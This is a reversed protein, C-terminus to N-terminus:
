KRRLDWCYVGNEQRFFIRGDVLPYYIPHHYSTTTGGVPPIWSGEGTLCRVRGDDTSKYFGGALNGHTGDRRVLVIDEIAQMYGGNKPALGETIAVVKGTALEVLRLDATFVYKDRVVVPVCENHVPGYRANKGRLAEVRAKDKDPGLKWLLSAGKPTLRYAAISPDIPDRKKGTGDNQNVLLVDGHVTLGGPGLGRGGTLVRVNLRWVEKGTKAELCAVGTRAHRAGMLGILYDTGGTSWASLTSVARGGGTKWLFKGTAVDYGGWEKGAPGVLVNGTVLLANSFDLESKTEWLPDGTSADFAYLWGSMGLAFVRGAGYAPSMDFPGAKHHQSNVGRNKIVAKWLTKGTAADLCLVVDDACQFMKEIAYIPLEKGPYGAAKAENLMSRRASSETIKQLSYERIVAEPVDAPRPAPVFYKFFVKGDAVVPSACGTGTRRTSASKWTHMFRTINGMARGIDTEESRWALRLDSPDDITAVGTPQASCGGGAPGQAAPWSKDGAIANSKALESESVYQGSITARRDGMKAHGSISDGSITAEVEVEVDLDVRRFKGTLRSDKLELRGGPELVGVGDDVVMVGDRLSGVYSWNRAKRDSRNRSEPDGPITLNLVALAYAGSPRTVECQAIPSSEPPSRRTALGLTWVKISRKSGSVLLEGSPSMAICSVSERHAEITSLLAGTNRNWVRLTKDDGASVIRSGSPSFLVSTIDGTHGRLTQTVEGSESNWLKLTKDWSASVLQRGDPSYAASTIVASHGRLTEVEEGNETDWIKLENEGDGTVIRKGDPSFAATTVDYENGQHMTLLVDGNEADWVILSDDASGSALYDGSPDFTVTTITEEHESLERVVKGIEADCILLEGDWTGVALRSGDKSFALATVASDFKRLTRSLGTAVDWIRLTQDDSGSVLRASDPSIALSLVWREHGNLSRTFRLEEATAEVPASVLSLLVLVRLLSARIV